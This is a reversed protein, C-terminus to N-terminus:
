DEAYWTIGVVGPGTHTGIVPSLSVIYLEEPNLSKQVEDAVLQAGIPAGAHAVAAFVKNKGACAENAISLLRKMAKKKTRVKELVEIKGDQLELLPKISLMSGFLRAAGGIRGGRHLFELTDVMFVIRVDPLMARVMEAAEKATAGNELARVAALAMFGLGMSTSKSDIIEIPFDEMLKAAAHASAVTGSLESSIHLSIISDAEEAVKSYLDFFEGASPQSTSPMEKTSKLRRYFEDPTIDVNDRLSEGSWNVWLPITHINHKEILAEPIYATSDVVVAAKAKSM